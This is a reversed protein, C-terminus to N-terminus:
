GLGQSKSRLVYGIWKQGWSYTLQLIEMEMLQKNLYRTCLLCDCVCPRILVNPAGHWLTMPGERGEGAREEPRGEREM